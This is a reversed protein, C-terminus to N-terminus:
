ADQEGRMKELASAIEDFHSGTKAVLEVTTSFASCEQNFGSVGKEGHNNVWMHTVIFKAGSQINKVEDGVRIEAGQEYAKLKEIVELATFLKYIDMKMAAKGFIEKLTDLDYDWIKRAAEWAADLGKQYAEGMRLKKEQENWNEVSKAGDEVGRQYAENTDPETYPTLKSIGTMDFVLSNFGKVRYLFDGNEKCFPKNELEIIYKKGM